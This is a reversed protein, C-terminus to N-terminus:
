DVFGKSRLMQRAQEAVKTFDEIRIESETIGGPGRLQALAFRVDAETFADNLEVITDVLRPNADAFDRDIMSVAWYDPWVRADDRLTVYKETDSLEADTTFGIAIDTEESDLMRYTEDHEYSRGEFNLDYQRLLGELGDVRNEFGIPYGLVLERNRSYAAIDTITWNRPDEGLTEHARERLMVITYQNKFGMRGLVRTRYAGDEEIRQNLSEIAHAEPPLQQELPLQLHTALITASYDMWLDLEGRLLNRLMYPVDGQYEDVIVRIDPHSERLVIAYVNAFLASELFSRSGIRIESAPEQEFPDGAYVASPSLAAAVRVGSVAILAVSVVVLAFDVGHRVGLSSEGDIPHRRRNFLWIFILYIPFFSVWSYVIASFYWGEGWGEGGIVDLVEISTWALVIYAAAYRFLQASQLERLIARMGADM